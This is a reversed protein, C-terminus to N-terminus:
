PSRVTAWITRFPPVSAGLLAVMLGVTAWTVVEDWLRLPGSLAGIWLLTLVAVLTFGALRARGAGAEGEVWDFLQPLTLLTVVLRYDFNNGVAFTGLFTLSGLYFALRTSSNATPDPESRRRRGALWILPGAVLVPAIAVLQKAFLGEWRDPIFRHYIAAPLIRAGFSHQDGQPAARAVAQIDGFTLVVYVAFAAACVIAAIAPARRRVFLYAPLGFVPYIKGTAALFVVLPSAVRGWRKRTRWALVGGVLLTFVVIDLNAREIAFMVSPSCLAVAVLVGRGLGIRGVLLYVSGLFLAVFLLALPVTHSQDLGLWRLALWVRPYNLPRNWPDCPSEVLPDFELRRCELAATLNRTDFFLSPGSPVGLSPWVDIGFLWRPVAVILFYVVLAATIFIRGDVDPRYSLIVLLGREIKTRREGVGQDSRVSM